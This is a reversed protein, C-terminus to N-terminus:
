PGPKEGERVLIVTVGWKSAAEIAPGLDTRSTRPANGPKSRSARTSAKNMSISSYNM